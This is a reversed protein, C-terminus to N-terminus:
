PCPEFIYKITFDTTSNRVASSRCGDPGGGHPFSDPDPEEGCNTYFTTFNTPSGVVFEQTIFCCQNIDIARIGAAIGASASNTSEIIIYDDGREIEIGFDAFVVYNDASCGDGCPCESCDGDAAGGARAVNTLGGAGLVYVLHELFLGAIGSIESLIQARVAEWQSTSFSADDSMNCYLICQLNDYVGDTLAPRLLAIGLAFIQNAIVTMLMTFIDTTELYIRIWDKILEDLTYRTMEDTLQEGIQEKILLAAGTAAICKKDDPDEGPPVPFQPSYHRPDYEPADVWVGGGNLSRQLIGDPSWRYQIPLNDDCCGSMLADELGATFAELQDRDLSELDTRWRTPWNLYETMGLLAAVQQDTLCYSCKRNSQSQVFDWDVQIAKWGAKERSNNEPM